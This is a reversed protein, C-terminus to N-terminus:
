RPTRMLSKRRGGEGSMSAREIEGLFLYIKLFTTLITLNEIIHIKGCNFSFDQSSSGTLFLDLSSDSVTVPFSLCQTRSVSLVITNPVM